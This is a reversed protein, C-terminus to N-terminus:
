SYDDLGKQIYKKTLEILETINEENYKCIDIPKHIIIKAKGPFLKITKNPLVNRTGTITIPLIPLDIDFAFRFGGKKFELLKGTDSRTGEAMFLIGVNGSISKKAEQISALAAERNSRDIFIHGVKECAFGFFPVKRLEKKIVWKLNLKFFGVLALIDYHSQHNSIVVYSKNKDINERGVTKIFMPTFYCSLRAWMVGGYYGINPSILISLAVAVFSSIITVIGFIPLFVLYKYVTYLSYLIKNNRM